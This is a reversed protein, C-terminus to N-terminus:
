SGLMRSVVQASLHMRLRFQPSDAQLGRPIWGVAGCERTAWPPGRLLRAPSTSRRSHPLGSEKHLARVPVVSRGHMRWACSPEYARSGQSPEQGSGHWASSGRRTPVSCPRAEARRSPELMRSGSSRSRLCPLHAVNVKPMDQDCNHESAHCLGLNYLADAHEGNKLAAKFVSIAEAIRTKKLLDCGVANLLDSGYTEEHLTHEVCSAVAVPADTQVSVECTAVAKEVRPVPIFSSALTRPHCLEGRLDELTIGIHSSAAHQSTDSVFGNATLGGPLVGSQHGIKHVPKANEPEDSKSPHIPSLFRNWEARLVNTLLQRQSAM